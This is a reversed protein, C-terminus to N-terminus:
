CCYSILPQSKKRSFSHRAYVKEPSFFSPAAVKKFSFFSPALVKKPALFKWNGINHARLNQVRGLWSYFHYSYACRDKKEYYLSKKLNSDHCIYSFQDPQEFDSCGFHFFISAQWQNIRGSKRGEKTLSWSCFIVPFYRIIQRHEM